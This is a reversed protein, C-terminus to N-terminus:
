KVCTAYPIFLTHGHGCYCIVHLRGEFELTISCPSVCLALLTYFQYQCSGNVLLSFFFGYLGTVIEIFASAGEINGQLRRLTFNYIGGATLNTVSFNSM